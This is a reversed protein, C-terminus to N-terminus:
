TTNYLYSRNSTYNMDNAVFEDWCSLINSAVELRVCRSTFISSFDQAFNKESFIKGAISSSGKRTSYLSWGERLFVGILTIIPASIMLSINWCVSSSITSASGNSMLYWYANCVVLKSSCGNFSLVNPLNLALHLEYSSCVPISRIWWHITLRDEWIVLIIFRLVPILRMSESM